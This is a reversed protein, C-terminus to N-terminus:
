FGLISSLAFLDQLNIQGDGNLDYWTPDAAPADTVQWAFAYNEGASSVKTNRDSQRVVIAYLSNSDATHRIHEVNDVPSDSYDVLRAGTQDYAWLELSLDVDSATDHRFPYAQEYHRNWVLTATIIKGAIDNADIFYTAASTSELPLSSSDWGIPRVQGPPQKGASLLNYAAKADVAGAGQTYDLPVVHDDGADIAGKHWYALKKASTLLLAKIVTAANEGAAERLNPDAKAAQMLLSAAGAVVPTAYSSCAPTVLFGGDADAAICRGPAVIDPKSRNDDTPGCSSSTCRPLWFRSLSERPDDSRVGEIVGVAIANSGAAPFLTSDHAALGNGIGAVVPIGYKEAMADIGRTWWDEFQVGLGISVIDAAPRRSPFVNSTLFYWFEYFEASVEPAAGEYSFTGLGDLYVNPDRGLLISAIATEHVSIGAPVDQRDHFLLSAGAFCRHAAYPRYDNMPLGDVYTMSRAVVAVRVGTGTLWPQADRLGYVGAYDLAAPQRGTEASAPGAAAALSLL